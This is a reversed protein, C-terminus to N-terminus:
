DPVRGRRRARPRSGCSPRNFSPEIGDFDVHRMTIQEGRKQRRDGVRAVVLVAAVPGPAHPWTVRLSLPLSSGGSSGGSAPAPTSPTTSPWSMAWRCRGCRAVSTPWWAPIPHASRRTTASTSCRSRRSWSWWTLRTIPKPLEQLWGNNAFRGDLVSPDHRFVVELGAPAQAPPTGAPGCASLLGLAAGSAALRTLFSRRNFIPGGDPM